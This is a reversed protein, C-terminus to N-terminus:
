CSHMENQKKKQDIHFEYDPTRSAENSCFQNAVTKLVGIDGGNDRKATAPAGRWWLCTNFRGFQLKDDAVVEFVVGVTDLFLELICICTNPEDENHSVFVGVLGM